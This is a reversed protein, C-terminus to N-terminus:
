IDILLVSGYDYLADDSLSVYEANHKDLFVKIVNFEPHNEIKGTFVIKGDINGSAGGIFGHEYPELKVAHTNLLLVDYGNATLIKAIGKDETIVAKEAENVVVLNCKLYGQNVHIINMGANKAYELAGSYVSDTKCLFDDGVCYANLKVDNPYKLKEDNKSHNGFADSITFLKNRICLFNMDAHSAVSGDFYDCKECFEISYEFLTSLKNLMTRPIDTNVIIKKM